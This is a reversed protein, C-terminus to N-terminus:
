LGKIRTQDDADMLSENGHDSVDWLNPWFKNKNMWEAAAKEADELETFDGIFDHETAVSIKGSKTTFRIDEEDPETPEDDDDFDALVKKVDSMKVYSAKTKKNRYTKIGAKHLQKKLDAVTKIAM